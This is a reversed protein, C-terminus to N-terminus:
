KNQAGTVFLQFNGWLETGRLDDKLDGGIAGSLTGSITTPTKHYLQSLITIKLNDYCNRSLTTIFNLNRM